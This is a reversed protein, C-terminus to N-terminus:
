LGIGIKWFLKDLGNSAYRLIRYLSTRIYIAHILRSLLRTNFLYIEDLQQRGAGWKLKYPLDGWLLNVQDAGSLTYYELEKLMLVNGPSCNRFENKYSGKLIEVKGAFEVAFDYAVDKGDLALMGLRLWGRDSLQKFLARYFNRYKKSELHLGARGKWSAREIMLMREFLTQDPDTHLVEVRVSHTRELRNVQNRLTKRFRGHHTAFREKWGSVQNICASFIVPRQSIPLGYKGALSRISQLSQSEAPIPHLRMYDWMNSSQLLYAIFADIVDHYRNAIIFDLSGSCNSASYAYEMTSIFEIKRVPIGAYRSKVMMMPALGIITDGELAVLVLLQKKDSSHSSWWSTLWEFTRYLVPDSTRHLLTNWEAELESWKEITRIEHVIIEPAMGDRELAVVPRDLTAMHLTDAHMM